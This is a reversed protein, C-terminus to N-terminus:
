SVSGFSTSNYGGIFISYYILGELVTKINNIGSYGYSTIRCSPNIKKNDIDLNEMYAHVRCPSVIDLNINRINYGLLASM